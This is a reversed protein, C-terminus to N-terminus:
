RAVPSPTQLTQKLEEVITMFLTAKVFFRTAGLRAAREVDARDNSSSLVYVPTSRFEPQARLWELLEFGDRGPMKLDVVLLDPSPMTHLRQLADDVSRSQVVHSEIGAWDLACRFLLLDSDNDDVHLITPITVCSM